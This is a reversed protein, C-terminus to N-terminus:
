PRPGDDGHDYRRILSVLLPLEAGSRLALTLGGRGHPSRALGALDPAEDAFGFVSVQDGPSLCAANVLRGGAVRVLVREGGADSLAFDRGADVSWRGTEDATLQRRWLDAQADAGPLPACIGRLHVPEGNEQAAAARFTAPSSGLLRLRRRVIRMAVGSPRRSPSLWPTEALAALSEWSEFHSLGAALSGSRDRAAVDLLLARARDLAAISPLRRRGATSSLAARRIM